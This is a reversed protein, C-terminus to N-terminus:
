AANTWRMRENQSARGAAPQPPSSTCRRCNTPMSFTSSRTSIPRCRPWCDIMFISRMTVTEQNRNTTPGPRLASVVESDPNPKCLRIIRPKASCRTRMTSGNARRRCAICIGCHTHRNPLLRRRGDAHGCITRCRVFPSVFVSLRRPLMAVCILGTLSPQRCCPSPSSKSGALSPVCSSFGGSSNQLLRGRLLPTGKCQHDL